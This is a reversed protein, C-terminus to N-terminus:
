LAKEIHPGCDDELWQELGALDPCYRCHTRKLIKTRNQLLDRIGKDQSVFASAYALPVPIIEYDFFDNIKDKRTLQQAAATMVEVHNHLAPLSNLLERLMSGRDDNPSAELFRLFRAQIPLALKQIAPQIHSEFVSAAILMWIKQKDGSATAWTRNAGESFKPAVLKKMYGFIGDGIRAARMALLETFTLSQLRDKVEKEVKDVEELPLCAPFQLEYESTLYAAIPVYLEFISVDLPVADALARVAREVEWDFVELRNAYTTNLSLEEMLSGVNLRSDEAQKYLETILGFSLPCFIKGDSVQKRLVDKVRTATASKDDAMNIWCNMDLAVARRDQCKGRVSSREFRCSITRTLMTGKPRELSQM